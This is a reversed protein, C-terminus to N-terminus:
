DEYDVVSQCNPSACHINHLQCGNPKLTEECVKRVQFTGILPMWSSQCVNNTGGSYDGQLELENKRIGIIEMSEKGKYITEHFVRMGLEPRIVQERKTMNLIQKM